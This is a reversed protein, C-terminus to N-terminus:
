VSRELEQMLVTKFNKIITWHSRPLFQKLEQEYHINSKNLLSLVKQLVNKKRAPILHARLMFYLDYFDRAKQRSLLAQIKETVLQSQSLSILTYPPIFDNAITVVERQTRGKRQSIELQIAIEQDRLTCHIIGIYGGSTKKSEKIDTGIGEREIERITQILINEIKNIGTTASSFDLDESFRPSQHIIRLATGGKFYINDAELQQYFYSLFLHQIYERRINLETSQLKKALNQIVTNSIM